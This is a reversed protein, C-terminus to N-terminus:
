NGYLSKKTEYFGVTKLPSLRLCGHYALTEMADKFLLGFHAWFDMGGM